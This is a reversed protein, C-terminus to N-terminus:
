LDIKKQIISALNKPTKTHKVKKQFSLQSLKQHKFKLRYYLSKEKEKHAAKSHKKLQFYNSIKKLM